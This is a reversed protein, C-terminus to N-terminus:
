KAEREFEKKVEEGCIPCKLTLIDFVAGDRYEITSDIVRMEVKCHEM